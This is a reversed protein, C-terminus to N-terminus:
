RSLKAFIRARGDSYSYYTTGGNRACYRIDNGAVNRVADICSMARTKGIAKCTDGGPYHAHQTQYVTYERM